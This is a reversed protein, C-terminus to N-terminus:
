SFVPLQQFALSFFHWRAIPKGISGHLGNVIWGRFQVGCVVTNRNRFHLVPHIGDALHALNRIGYHNIKTHFLPEFTPHNKKM